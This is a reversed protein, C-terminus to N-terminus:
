DKINCYKVLFIKNDGGSDEELLQGWYDKSKFNTLKKWFSDRIKYERKFVNFANDYNRVSCNYNEREMELFDTHMDLTYTDSDINSENSELDGYGSIARQLMLKSREKQYTENADQLVKVDALAEDYKRQYIDIDKYSSCTFYILSEKDMYVLEDISKKDCAFAVPTAMIILYTILLNRKM